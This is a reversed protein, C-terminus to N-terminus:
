DKELATAIRDLHHVIALLSMAKASDTCTNIFETDDNNESAPLSLIEVAVQTADEAKKRLDSM